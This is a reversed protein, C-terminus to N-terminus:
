KRSRLSFFSNRLLIEGKKTLVSHKKCICWTICQNICKECLEINLEKGYTEIEDIKFEIEKHKKCIQCEKNESPVKVSASATLIYDKWRCNGNKDNEPHHMTKAGTDFDLIYFAM